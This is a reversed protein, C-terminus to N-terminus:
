SGFVKARLEVSGKVGYRQYVATLHNKVTKESVQLADAIRGIRFGNLQHLAVDRQAPTCGHADLSVEARVRLDLSEKRCLLGLIRIADAPSLPDEVLYAVEVGARAALEEYTGTLVVPVGPPAMGTFSRAPMIIAGLDAEAALRRRTLVDYGFAALHLRLYEGEGTSREVFLVKVPEVLPVTRESTLAFFGSSPKKTSPPPATHTQTRKIAM